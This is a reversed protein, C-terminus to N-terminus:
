GGVPMPQWEIGRKTSLDLCNWSIADRVVTLLLLAVIGVTSCRAPDFRGRLRECRVAHMDNRIGGGSQSKEEVSDVHSGIGWVDTGLILLGRATRRFHVMGSCRSSSVM